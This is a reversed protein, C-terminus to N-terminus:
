PKKVPSKRKPRASDEVLRDIERQRKKSLGFTKATEEPSTPRDIIVKPQAKARKKPLTRAEERIRDDLWEKVLVPLSVSKRRAFETLILALTKPFRLRLETTEKIRPIAKPADKLSTPTRLLRLWREAEPEKM